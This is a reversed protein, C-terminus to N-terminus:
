KTKTGKWEKERKDLETKPVKLVERTLKDLAQMEPSSWADKAEAKDKGKRAM